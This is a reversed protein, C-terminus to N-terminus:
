WCLLVHTGILLHIKGWVKMLFQELMIYFLRKHYITNAIRAVDRYATLLVGQEVAYGFLREQLLRRGRFLRSMVTGVPSGVVGAIEKYSLEEIERLVLVERYAPALTASYSPLVSTPWPTALAQFPENEIM